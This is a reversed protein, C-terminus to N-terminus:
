LPRELGAIRQPEVEFHMNRRTTETFVTDIGSNHRVAGIEFIAITKGSDAVPLTALEYVGSVPSRM